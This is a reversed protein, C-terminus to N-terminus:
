ESLVYTTYLFLKGATLSEVGVTATIERAATTKIMNAATGDQIGDHMGAAWPTSVDNIAIAAVIDDAGEAHLAVTATSTGSTFPTVVDYWTHVIISNDPVKNELGYAAVIKGAGVDFEVRAVGSVPYFTLPSNDIIIWMSSDDSQLGVKGVDSSQISTDAERAAADAWTFANIVHNNTGTMSKHLGM